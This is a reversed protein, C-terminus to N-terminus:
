VRVVEVSGGAAAIQERARASFAQLRVTLAHGLTGDALCKVPGRGRVIRRARLEEPGVTSGAPFAALQGLNVIAYAVRNPPHFGRKPLRRQLPMQGGEYGPPSNGGSRSRRGKHGRSATKGHGSGPGRGVRKRERTSGSAPRLRSLDM